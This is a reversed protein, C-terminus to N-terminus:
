RPASRCSTAPDLGQNKFERYFAVVSNASWTRSCVDCGSDKIKNVM